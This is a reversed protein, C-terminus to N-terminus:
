EGIHELVKSIYAELMISKINRLDQDHNCKGQKDQFAARLIFFTSNSRSVSMSSCRNTLSLILPPLPPLSWGKIRELWHGQFPFSQHWCICYSCLADLHWCSRHIPLTVVQVWTWNWIVWLHAIPLTLRSLSAQHYNLPIYNLTHNPHINNRSDRYKTINWLTCHKKGIYKLTGERNWLIYQKKRINKLTGEHVEHDVCFNYVQAQVDGSLLFCVEPSDVDSTVLHLIWCVEM